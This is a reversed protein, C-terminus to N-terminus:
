EFLGYVEERIRKLTALRDPETKEVRDLAAAVKEKLDKKVRVATAVLANEAMALERCTRAVIAAEKMTLNVEGTSEAVILKTLAGHLLEINLAAVRNEGQEGLTRRLNEALARSQRVQEGIVDIKQTWRGLSARSIEVDLERLKELIQDISHGAERLRGITERIETPLKHIASRRPM